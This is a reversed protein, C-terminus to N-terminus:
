GKRENKGRRRRKPVEASKAQPVSCSGWYCAKEGKYNALAQLLPSLVHQKLEDQIPEPSDLSKLALEVLEIARDKNGSEYYYHAVAAYSLFKPGDDRQPPNLALIHESLEKGIAFREASPFYSNDKAPDFLERMAGAMWVESKQNIADRVLQRLVPLGTRMDHMKHLLLDVQLVRFKIDDPMVAVAEEVVSLARAWDGAKMAPQLKALITKTLARKRTERTRRQGEAIRKTDAAKAEDSTRWIGNFVKPLVEDLLMPHGIFAIHGDRDVVFSTPIGVSLSADMWLKNMEGTYDFAVRYNLQSFKETLWADLKTRAEDATSAKESAAVGVIELGRDKYKEQLQVLHPMSAVCQGCWTAWFEVIYVKGAQFITVPQGRLWNQVKIPPAQSEMRVVM